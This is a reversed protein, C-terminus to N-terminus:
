MRQLLTDLMRDSLLRKMYWLVHSPVTVRYRTKPNKAELAKVVKQAVAQAPLTFPLPKSDPALRATMQKYAAEHASGHKKVLPAVTQQFAKLSNDRFKTAVPGPEILIVKINAGALELRLTDAWGELAFKSANYAGRYPLCVYGLLSSNLIIRGYGQQRMLPILQCSLDHWGFFNAEFQERLHERTLDELAGGQGYAGNNFLAYLKNNSLEKVRDACKRVSAPDALDLAIADLKNDQLMALDAETRATALVRYGKAALTKATALGIGSSCGSIM